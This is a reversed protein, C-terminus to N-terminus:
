DFLEYFWRQVNPQTALYTLLGVTLPLKLQSLFSKHESTDLGWAIAAAILPLPHQYIWHAVSSAVDPIGTTQLLSSGFQKIDQGFTPHPADLGYRFFHELEDTATKVSSDMVLDILPLIIHQSM